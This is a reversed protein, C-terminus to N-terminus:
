IKRVHLTKTLRGMIGQMTMQVMCAEVLSAASHSANEKELQFITSPHASELQKSQKHPNLHEALAEDFSGTGM